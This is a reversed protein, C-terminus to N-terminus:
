LKRKEARKILFVLCITLSSSWIFTLAFPRYTWKYSHESGEPYQAPYGMLYAFTLGLIYVILINYVKYYPAIFYTAVLGIAPLIIAAAYMDWVGFLRSFRDILFTGVIMYVPM